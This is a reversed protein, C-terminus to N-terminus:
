PTRVEIAAESLWAKGGTTAKDFALKSRGPAIARVTIEALFAGAEVTTGAPLDLVVRGPGVSAEAIGDGAPIARVALVALIAPDFAVEVKGEPATGAGTARVLVTRVEGTALSLSAPEFDFAVAGQTQSGPAASQPEIANLPSM